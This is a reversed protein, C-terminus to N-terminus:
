VKTVLFRLIEESAELSRNFELIANPESAFKTLVYNGERFKKVPYALRRLGWVEHETVSGGAETVLGHVREVTVSVEEETAEPSLIMVMEYDRTQQAVM